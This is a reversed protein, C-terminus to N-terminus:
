LIKLSSNDNKERTLTSLSFIKICFDALFIIVTAVCAGYIGYNPILLYFITLGLVTLFVKSAFEFREGGLFVILYSYFVATSYIIMAPSLIFVANITQPYRNATDIFNMLFPSLIVTGFAVLTGLITTYLGYEVIVSRKYSLKFMKELKSSAKSVEGTKLHRTVHSALIPMTIGPIIGALTFIKDANGFSGLTAPDFAYYNNLILQRSQLFISSLFVVSGLLFIPKLNEKIINEDIKGFTYRKSQWISDVFFSMLYVFLTVYLFYDLYNLYEPKFFSTFILCLVLFARGVFDTINFQWGENFADCISRYNLDWILIFQLLYFLITIQLKDHGTLRYTLSIVILGLFFSLFRMFNISTWFAGTTSKDPKPTFYRQIIAPIGFDLFSVVITIYALTGYYLGLTQVDFYENLWRITYLGMGTTLLKIGVMSLNLYGIKDIFKKLYGIM